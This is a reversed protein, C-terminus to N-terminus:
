RRDTRPKDEDDIKMEMKMAWTATGHWRGM